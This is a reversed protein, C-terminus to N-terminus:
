FKKKYFVFGSISKYQWIIVNSQKIQFLIKFKILTQNFDHQQM